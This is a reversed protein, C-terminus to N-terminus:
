SVHSSEPKYVDAKKKKPTRKAKENRGIVQLNSIVAPPKPFHQRQQAGCM